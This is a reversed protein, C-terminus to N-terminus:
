EYIIEVNKLIEIRKAQFAEPTMEAADKRTLHNELVKGQTIFEIVEPTRWQCGLMVLRQFTGPPNIYVQHYLEAATDYASWVCARPNTHRSRSLGFEPLEDRLTPPLLQAAPKDKPSKLLIRRIGDCKIVPRANKQLQRKILKQRHNNKLEDAISKQVLARKGEITIPAPEPMKVPELNSQSATMLAKRNAQAIRLAEQEFSEVSAIAANIEDDWNIKRLCSILITADADSFRGIHSVGPHGLWIWRISIGVVADIELWWSFSDPVVENIIAKLDPIAEQLRHASHSIRM